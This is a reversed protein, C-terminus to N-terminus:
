VPIERGAVEQIAMGEPVEFPGRMTVMDINTYSEILDMIQVPFSSSLLIRLCTGFGSSLAM